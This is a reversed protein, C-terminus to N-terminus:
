TRAAKHGQAHIASPALDVAPKITAISIIGEQDVTVLESASQVYNGGLRKSRSVALDASHLLEVASCGHDPCAAVGFSMTVRTPLPSPSVAFSHNAIHQRIREAAAVAEALDTEPLLLAFEDGGFRAALDCRRVQHEIIEAVECIVKDGVLHGYTNNIERLLDLDAMVISLPRSYRVARRIEEEALQTFYRSNYLGTKPDTVAAHRLQPLELSRYVLILPYAAILVFWPNVTWILAMGAGCAALGTDILLGDIAMLGTSALKPEKALHLALAMTIHNIITFTLIASIAAVLTLWAGGRAPDLALSATHAATTAIIFSAINFPQVLAPRRRMVWEPIFIIVMAVILLSYDLLLVLPLVFATTICYGHHRTSSTTITRAVTAAATFAAFTWWMDAEGSNPLGNTLLITVALVTPGGITLGFYLRAAKPLAEVLGGVRM